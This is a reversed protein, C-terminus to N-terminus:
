VLPMIGPTWRKFHPDGIREVRATAFQHRNDSALAMSASIMEDNTLGVGGQRKQRGPHRLRIRGPRGREDRM